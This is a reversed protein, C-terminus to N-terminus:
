IQGLGGTEPPKVTDVVVSDTPSSETSVKGATYDFPPVKEDSKDDGTQELMDEPYEQDPTRNARARALEKISRRVILWRGDYPNRM